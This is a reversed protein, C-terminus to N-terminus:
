NNGKTKTPVSDGFLRYSLRYWLGFVKVLLSFFFGNQHLNFFRLSLSNLFRADHYFLRIRDKEGNLMETLREYSHHRGHVVKVTSNGWVVNPHATRFNYEEPLCYVTADSLFLAERFAPQDHPPNLNQSIQDKYIESWSKLVGKAEQSKTFGILGTNFEPFYPPIKDGFRGQERGPAYAALFDYKGLLEFLNSIDEALYTDTDIFITLDFPSLSLPDIKDIFNFKPNEIVRVDDFYKNGLEANESDTFLIVPIDPCQRKLSAFSDAAEKVFHIGTAIYVFGKKM